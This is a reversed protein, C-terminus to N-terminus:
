SDSWREMKEINKSKYAFEAEKIEGGGGEEGAKGDKLGLASSLLEFKRMRYGQRKDKQDGQIRSVRVEVELRSVM